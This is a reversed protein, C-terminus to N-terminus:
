AAARNRAPHHHSLPGPSPRRAEVLAELLMEISHDHTAEVAGSITGAAGLAAAVTLAGGVRDGTMQFGALVLTAIWFAPSIRSLLSRARRGM